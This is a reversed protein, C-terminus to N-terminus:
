SMKIQIPRVKSQNWLLPLCPAQVIHILQSPLNGNRFHSTKFRQFAQLQYWEKYIYHEKNALHVNEAPVLNMKFDFILIAGAPDIVNKAHIREGSIGAYQQTPRAFIATGIFRRLYGLVKVRSLLNTKWVSFQGFHPDGLSM